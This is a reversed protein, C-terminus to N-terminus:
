YLSEGPFFVAAEDGEWGRAHAPGGAAVVPRLHFLSLFSPM